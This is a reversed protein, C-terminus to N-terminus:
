TQIAGSIKQLNKQLNAVEEFTSFIEFLVAIANGDSNRGAAYNMRVVSRPSEYLQVGLSGTCFWM